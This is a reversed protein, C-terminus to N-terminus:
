LSGNPRRSRPRPRAPRRSRYPRRNPLRLPSSRRPEPVPDVKAAPAPAAAPSPAPTNEAPLATETRSASWRGKVCGVVRSVLFLAVLVAVGQVIQQQRQKTFVKDLKLPIDVETPEASLKAPLEERHYDELVLNLDVGLYQAYMKVFGKMYFPTLTRVKYGDEIAKLADLPIKTMEHVTELAIGQGERAKKLIEGSKSSLQREQSDM